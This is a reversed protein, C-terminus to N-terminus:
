DPPKRRAAVEDRLEAALGRLTTARGRFLLAAAAKRVFLCLAALTAAVVAAAYADGGPAAPAVVELRPGAPAPQAGDVAVRPADFAVARRPAAGPTLYRVHFPVDVTLDGACGDLAWDLRLAHPASAYEPAEVDFASPNDGAVTFRAVCAPWAARRRLEDVDCYLAAPLDWDMALNKNTAAVDAVVCRLSRHQGAGSSVTCTAVMTEAALGDIFAVICRM